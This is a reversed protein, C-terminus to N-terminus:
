NINSSDKQIELLTVSSALPTNPGIKNDDGRYGYVQSSPFLFTVKEGKRLLKIGNRLGPFLQSKDVAHQVLGFDKAKYLTDGSFSMLNYSLWVVDNTKPTYGLTDKQDEYYYWFGFPSTLYSHLSDKRIIEQIQQQEKELIKKSRVVSAKFFSGTRTQIPKRPEPESCALFFFLSVVLFHYKRM